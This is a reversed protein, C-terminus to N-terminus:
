VCWFCCSDSLLLCYEAICQRLILAHGLLIVKKPYKSKSMYHQRCCSLWSAPLYSHLSTLGMKIGTYLTIDVDYVGLLRFHRM